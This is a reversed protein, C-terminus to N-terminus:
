EMVRIKEHLQFNQTVLVAPMDNFDEKLYFASGCGLQEAKKHLINERHMPSNMWDGIMSEGLALYTRPPIPEGGQKLMFVGPSGTFVKTNAKYDLVFSEIINEAMYPNAVGVARARDPPERLAKNKKNIHDFFDLRVMEKSHIEAAEELLPHYELLPLRKKARQENTLFFALANVRKLDIKEPDITELFDPEDRFNDLTLSYYDHSQSTNQGTFLQPVFLLIYVLNM